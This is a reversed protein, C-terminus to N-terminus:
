RNAAHRQRLWPCDALNCKKLLPDVCNCWDREDRPIGTIPPYAADPM